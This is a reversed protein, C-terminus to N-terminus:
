LFTTKLSPLKLRQVAGDSSFLATSDSQTLLVIVVDSRFRGQKATLFRRNIIIVSEYVKIDQFTVSGWRDQQVHILGGTSITIKGRDKIVLQENSRPYSDLLCRAKQCYSQPM